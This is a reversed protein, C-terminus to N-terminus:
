PRLQESLYGVGKYLKKMEEAFSVKPEPERPPLYNKPIPNLRENELDYSNLIKKRGKEFDSHIQLYFPRM